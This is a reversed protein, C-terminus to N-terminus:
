NPVPLQHGDFARACEWMIKYDDYYLSFLRSDKAKLLSFTPRNRGNANFTGLEVFIVGHQSAGNIIVLTHAPLYEITRFDLRGKGVQISVASIYDVFDEVRGRAPSYM